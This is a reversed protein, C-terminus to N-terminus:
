SIGSVVADGLVQHAAHGGCGVGQCCGRREGPGVQHGGHLLGSRVQVLSDIVGVDVGLDALADVLVGAHAAYVSILRTLPWLQGPWASRAVAHLDMPDGGEDVVRVWAGLLVRACRVCDGACAM